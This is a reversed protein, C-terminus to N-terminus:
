EIMMGNFKLTAVTPHPFDPDTQPSIDVETCIWQFIQNLDFDFSLRVHINVQSVLERDYYLYPSTLWVKRLGSYSLLPNINPRVNRSDRAFALSLIVKSRLGMMQSKFPEHLWALPLSQKSLHTSIRPTAPITPPALSLWQLNSSHLYRCRRSSRMWGQTRPFAPFRLSIVCPFLSQGQQSM